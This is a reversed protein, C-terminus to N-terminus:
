PLSPITLLTGLATTGSAVALTASPTRLTDGLAEGASPLDDAGAERTVVQGAFRLDVVDFSVEPHPLAAQDWFARLRRLQDTHGSRGIRVRTSGHSSTPTTWREGRRWDIESVLAHTPADARALAALLSRLSASEVPQVPHYDPAGTM